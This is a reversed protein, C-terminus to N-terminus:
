WKNPALLHRPVQLSKLYLQCFYGWNLLLLEQIFFHSLLTCTSSDCLTCAFNGKRMMKATGVLKRLESCETRKVKPDRSGKWIFKVRGLRRRSDSISGSNEKGNRLSVGRNGAKISCLESGHVKHNQFMVVELTMRLLNKGKREKKWVLFM